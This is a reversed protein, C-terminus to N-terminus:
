GSIREIIVLGGGGSSGLASTSLGGGGGAGYGVAAAQASGGIASQGGIGGVGLPTTAGIGGMIVNTSASGNNIRMGAIGKQGTFGIVNPTGTVAGGAGGSGIDTSTLGPSGGGCTISVPSGISSSGGAGGNTAAAGASGAAGVTITIGTSPAVSTFTGEAYAGAGGGGGTGAAGNAGAGGGGGGVMRYRYVTGPTSDTPTTFTGSATFVTPSYVIQLTAALPSIFVEATGSLTIAANSNTSNVVTRTLTTGSTTYVGRGHESSSGDKIAYDVIDGNSVGALAFTLYGSVASGLTITGTGTTATTMRALNYLKAM